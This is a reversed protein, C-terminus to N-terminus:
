IRFSQETAECGKKKKKEKRTKLKELEWGDFTWNSGNIRSQHFGSFCGDVTAYPYIIRLVTLGLDLAYPAHPRQREVIREGLPSERGTLIKCPRQRESGAALAHMAGEPPKKTRAISTNDRCRKWPLYKCPLWMLLSAPAGCEFHVDLRHETLGERAKKCFM